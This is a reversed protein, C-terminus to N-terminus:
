GGERRQRVKPLNQLDEQGTKKNGGLKAELGGKKQERRASRTRKRFVPAKKKKRKLKM